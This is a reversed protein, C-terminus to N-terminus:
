IGLLCLVNTYCNYLTPWVDEVNTWRQVFTIRINQKQQTYGSQRALLLHPTQKGPYVWMSKWKLQILNDIYKNPQTHKHIEM